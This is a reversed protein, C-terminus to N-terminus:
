IFVVFLKPNVLPLVPADVTRLLDDLLHRVDRPRAHIKMGGATRDHPLHDTRIARAKVRPDGSIKPTSIAADIEM